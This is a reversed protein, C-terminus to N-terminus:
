KKVNEIKQFNIEFTARKILLNFNWIKFSKDYFHLVFM